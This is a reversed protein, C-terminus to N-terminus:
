KLSEAKAADSQAETEMGLERYARSRGLYARGYDPKQELAQTFDAVAEHYDANKHHANGRNYHYLHAFKKDLQLARGYDDIAGSYEGKAAYTRGRQNYAIGWRPRIRIAENYDALARDYDRRRYYADGRERYAAACESCYDGSANGSSANGSSLRVAELHDVIAHDYDLKARHALARDHYARAFDPHLRIVENCDAIAKDYDGQIRYALARNRLLRCRNVTALEPNIRIAESFDAIAHSFDGRAFNSHAQEDFAAAHKRRYEATAGHAMARGYYAEAMDPAMDIAKDFDDIAAEVDGQKLSATGRDVLLRADHKSDLASELVEDTDRVHAVEDAVAASASDLRPGVSQRLARVMKLATPFRDEPQLSTARRIVAREAPPLPDLQLHGGTHVGFVEELSEAAFPLVGTRLEFYTIALSYQDTARSPEAGHVCEPAIYAPTGAPGTLSRLNEDGGAVRALGFDCVVASDGVLMINQPKVDCHQVAVPDGGLDHRPSNLFDIGKAADEMYDLLEDVPIGVCGRNKYQELLDFLNTNALPMAVVLTRPWRPRVRVTGTVEEQGHVWNDLCHMARDDLVNGQDDLLWFATIPLLHADRIEKVRQIGRFEKLGLKGGLNILKLATAMGGPASAQWVVANSGEGLFSELRYGPVPEDGVQWM